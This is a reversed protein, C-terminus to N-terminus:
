VKKTKVKKSFKVYYRNKYTKKLKKYFEKEGEIENELIMQSKENTLVDENEKLFNVYSLSPKTHTNVELDNDILKIIPKGMSSYKKRKVPNDERGKSKKNKYYYRVSM